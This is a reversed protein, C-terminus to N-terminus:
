QLELSKDPLSSTEANRSKLAMAASLQQKKEYKMLIKRNSPFLLSWFSKLITISGWSALVIVLVKLAFEFGFNSINIYEKMFILTLIYISMSIFILFYQTM